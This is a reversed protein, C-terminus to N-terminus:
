RARLQVDIQVKAKYGLLFSFHSIYWFTFNTGKWWKSRLINLTVNRPIKISESRRNNDETRMEFPANRPVFIYQIIYLTSLVKIDYLQNKYSKPFEYLFSFWHKQMTTETEGCEKLFGDLFLIYYYQYILFRRPTAALFDFISPIVIKFFITHYTVCNNYNCNKYQIIQRSTFQVYFIIRGVRHCSM